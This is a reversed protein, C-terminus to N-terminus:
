MTVWWLWSFCAVGGRTRTSFSHNASSANNKTRRRRKFVSNPKPTVACSEVSLIITKWAAADSGFRDWSSWLPPWIDQLELRQTKATIQMTTCIHLQWRWSGTRLSKISLPLLQFSNYNCDSLPTQELRRGRLMLSTVWSNPSIHTKGGFLM